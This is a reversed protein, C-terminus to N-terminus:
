GDRCSSWPLSGLDPQPTLLIALQNRLNGPLTGPTLTVFLTAVLFAMTMTRRLVRPSRVRRRPEPEPTPRSFSPEPSTEM